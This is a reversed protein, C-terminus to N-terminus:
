VKQNIIVSLAILSCPCFSSGLTLTDRIHSIILWVPSQSVLYLKTRIPESTYSKLHFRLLEVSIISAFVFLWEFNHLLVKDEFSRM